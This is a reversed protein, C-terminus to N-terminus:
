ATPTIVKVLAAREVQCTIPLTALRKWGLWWPSSNDGAGALATAKEAIMRVAEGHAPRGGRSLKMLGLGMVRQSEFGLLLADHTLRMWSGFM